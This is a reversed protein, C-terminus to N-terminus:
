QLRWVTIRMTSTSSPHDVTVAMGGKGYIGQSASVPDVAPVASAALPAFGAAQLVQVYATVAADDEPTCVIQHSYPGSPQTYVAEIRCREPQPLVGALDLPWDRDPTLPYADEFGSTDIDLTTDGPLYGLNLHYEGKTIDVADYDGEAMRRKTEPFDPYREDYYVIYELRFGNEELLRLYADIQERALDQYFIRISTGGEMVNRINVDLAPIDDPIHDPWLGSSGVAGQGLEPAAAGQAAGSDKAGVSGQTPDPGGCGAIVLVVVLPALVKALKRAM